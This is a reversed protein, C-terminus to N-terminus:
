EPPLVAVRRLREFNKVVSRSGDTYQDGYKEDGEAQSVIVRTWDAELEDALLQALSTRIGQGMESRHAMLTVAGDNAISVFVNPALPTVPAPVACASAQWCNAALCWRLVPQRWAEQLFTAVASIKSRDLMDFAEAAKKIAARIRQYTGCRCINTMAAEIDADTPKPNEKLLAAAAMIQGSQCYGCQPVNTAAWAKQMPHDGDRWGEIHHDATRVDGVPCAASRM